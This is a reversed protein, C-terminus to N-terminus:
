EPKGHQIRYQSPTIGEITKFKRLFNPVDNYGIQIVLERITDDSQILLRKFENLRLYSIYQVFGQGTEEKILTTILAKRIGTADSVIQVSLDPQRFNALIYDMLYQKTHQDDDSIRQKMDDCLEEVLNTIEQSFESPSSFVVLQQIRSKSVPLNLSDAQRIVASLLDSSCFRYFALSHTVESIMQLMDNLARLAITKDGRHIGESLLQLNLPSLGHFGDDDEGLTEDVIANYRWIPARAPALQVAACAEAFSENMQLPDEYAAGIGIVLPAAEDQAMHDHLKQAFADSVADLDSQPADFNLILCLASETPLESVTAFANEPQFRSASFLAKELRSEQEQRSYPLYLCLNWQRSFDAGARSALSHFMQPSSVHGFILRSVLQQAVLPTIENLRANLAEAEGMAQDYTDRILDLENVNGSASAPGTIHDVLERIPKYNFFAVWLIMVVLLVLLVAILIGMLRLNGTMSAYFATTPTVLTWTLNLDSDRARLLTLGVGNEETTLLGTGQTRLAQLPTLFIDQANNNYLVNYKSDHLYLNGTYAGLYNAFEEALVADSLVFVMVGKAYTDTPFPLLYALGTKRELDNRSLLPVLQPQQVQQLQTFLASASLEYDLLHQAEYVGYRMQGASSYISTSGKVYFLATVEPSIREELDQLAACLVSDSTVTINGESDTTIAQEVAFATQATYNLRNLVASINETAYTFNQLASQNIYQVSRDYNSAYMIFSFILIPVMIFLLSVIYRSRLSNKRLM